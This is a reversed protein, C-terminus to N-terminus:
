AQGRKSKGPRGTQDLQVEGKLIELLKAKEEASLDGVREFVTKQTPAKPELVSARAGWARAALERAQNTNRCVVYKTEQGDMEAKFVDHKAKVDAPLANLAEKAAEPTSCVVKVTSKSM